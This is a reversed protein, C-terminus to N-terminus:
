LKIIKANGIHLTRCIEGGSKGELLMQIITNAKEETMVNQLNIPLGLKIRRDAITKRSCGLRKAIENDSLGQNYLAKMENLNIDISKGM